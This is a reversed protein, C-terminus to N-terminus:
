IARISLKVPSKRVDDVRLILTPLATETEIEIWWEEDKLKSLALALMGTAWAERDKKFRGDRRAREVGYTESITAM